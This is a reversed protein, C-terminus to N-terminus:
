FYNNFTLFFFFFIPLLPIRDRSRSIKKLLTFTIVLPNIVPSSGSLPHVYLAPAKCLRPPPHWDCTSRTPWGAADAPEKLRRRPRWAPVWLSSPSINWPAGERRAGAGANVSKWNFSISEEQLIQPVNVAFQHVRDVRDLVRRGGISISPTPRAESREFIPTLPRTQSIEKQKGNNCWRQYWTGNAFLVNMYSRNIQYCYNSLVSSFSAHANNKRLDNSESKNWWKFFRHHVIEDIERAAWIVLDINSSVDNYAFAHMWENFLM